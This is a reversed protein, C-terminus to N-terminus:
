FSLSVHMLRCPNVPHPKGQRRSGHKHLSSRNKWQYPVHSDALARWRYDFEYFLLTPQEGKGVELTRMLMAHTNATTFFHTQCSASYVSECIIVVRYNGRMRFKERERERGKASEKERGGESVRYREGRERHRERGTSRNIERGRQRSCLKWRLHNILVTSEMSIVKMQCKCQSTLTYGYWYVCRNMISTRESTGAYVTAM